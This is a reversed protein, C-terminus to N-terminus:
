RDSYGPVHKRNGYVGGAHSMVDAALAALLLVLELGSVGGPAILVFTLTAWPLFILGLIPWIISGFAFNWRAPDLLWWIVIAVRPGLFLLTTFVCCM